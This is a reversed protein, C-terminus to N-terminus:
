RIAELVVVVISLLGILVTSVLFRESERHRDVWQRVEAVTGVWQTDQSIQPRRVGFVYVIPATDPVFKSEPWDKPVPTGLTGGGVRTILSPREGSRLRRQLEMNQTRRNIFRELPGFEPEDAYIFAVPFNRPSRVRELGALAAARGSIKDWWELYEGVGYVLTLLSVLIPFFYRLFRKM